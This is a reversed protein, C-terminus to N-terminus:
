IMLRIIAHLMHYTRYCVQVLMAALAEMDPIKMDPNTPIEVFLLTIPQRQSVDAALSNLGNQIALSIDNSGTIDFTTKHFKNTRKSLIDTLESSGGYSTSAMLVDVGGEDILSMYM